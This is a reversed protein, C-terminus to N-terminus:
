IAVEQRTLDSYGNLKPSHVTVGALYERGALSFTTIEPSEPLLCYQVILDRGPNRYRLAKEIAKKVRGISYTELLRLVSIYEKTGQHEEQAESELRRRLVEFCDPLTLDQLPLGYDLAGPKRELLPLYHCPNYITQYKDWSRQHETVKRGSKTHVEIHHIYGKVMLEHHGYRVPVSYDNKDFRVLSLSNAHVTEKRSIDFPDLPLSLFTESETLWLEQKSQMKGQLTRFQENWCHQWLDENLDSFSKVQPVPVMFNSRAYRVLSEVVGKENPRRVTCFHSEFLYHSQLRLFGDTLERQHCGTVKTIAIRSNDYIIRKPVGGFFDFAHIHGEFFAESCERPFAMVFFMDSYSLSMVLCHVKQLVGDINALAQFFDVQAEGPQQVLPMFVEQNTRKIERVVEKVVTYGGQYGREQVLRHFIRKATHRQKRPQSKDSAIIHHIWDLHSCLKPRIRPQIMRYGPPSSHSLIKELTTWHMGTERLIQRKSEGQVLVRHRIESWQKMDTYVEM